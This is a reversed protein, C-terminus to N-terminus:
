KAFPEPAYTGLAAKQSAALNKYYEYLGGPKEKEVPGSTKTEPGLKISPEPLSLRSAKAHEESALYNQIENAIEPSDAKLGALWNDRMKGPLNTIFETLAEAIPKSLVYGGVGGTIGGLTEGVATSGFRIAGRTLKGVLGKTPNGAAKDGDILNLFDATDRLKGIEANMNRVTTDPVPLRSEIGGQYAHGMASNFLNESTPKGGPGKSWNVENWHAHKQSEADGLGVGNKFKESVSDPGNPKFENEIRSIVDSIVGQPAKFSRAYSIARSKLDNLDITAGMKDAMNVLPKITANYLGNAEGRIKGTAIGTDYRKGDDILSHATIGRETLIEPIDNGKAKARQVQNYTKGEQRNVEQNWEKVSTSKAKEIQKDKFGSVKEGLTDKAANTADSIAGAASSAANKTADVTGSAGELTKDVGTKLKEQVKENDGAFLTMFSAINGSDEVKKAADPHDTKFQNWKDALYQVGGANNDLWSAVPKSTALKDLGPINGILKALPQIVASSAVAGIEKTVGGAIDGAVDFGAGLEGGLTGSDAGKKADTVVSTAAEHLPKSGEDLISKTYDYGGKAADGLGDGVISLESPATPQPTPTGWAQDLESGRDTGGPATVMSSVTDGRQSAIAQIQEASLAM